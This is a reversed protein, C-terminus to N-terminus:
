EEETEPKKLFEIYIEESKILGIGIIVFLISATFEGLLVMMLISIIIILAGTLKQVLLNGNIKVNEEAQSISKNHLTTHNTYEMFKYRM